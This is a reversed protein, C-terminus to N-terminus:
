IFVYSMYYLFYKIVYSRWLLVYIKIQCPRALFISTHISVSVTFLYDFVQPKRNSHRRFQPNKSAFNTTQRREMLEGMLWFTEQHSKNTTKQLSYDKMVHFYAWGARNYLGQGQPVLWGCGGVLSLVWHGVHSCRRMSGRIRAPLVIQAVSMPTGPPLTAIKPNVLSGVNKVQLLFPQLLFHYVMTFNWFTPVM